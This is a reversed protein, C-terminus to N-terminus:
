SIGAKKEAENAEDEYILEEEFSFVEMTIAGVPCRQSCLGCRVCRTEDKIMATGRESIGRGEKISDPDIGYRAKIVEKLEPTGNIKDLSVMKLCNMPCIDVCGGCLICLEGNFVTQIHCKLCRSAQESAAVEDYVMEVESVGTRRTLPLLAPRQKPIDLWGRKPLEEPGAVRLTARRVVRARGNQLYRDISRAVTHGDKVSEIIIRPGFAADGGAFIGPATTALTEPDVQISGERTAKIGDAETIFSLDSGQGIAMIVTDGPFVEESNSIPARMRNGKEDIVTEMRVTELGTVKGGEGLVRTPARGTHLFVGEDVADLIEEDPAKMEWRMGRYLIHVERAGLRLAGRAADMAAIGDKEVLGELLRLSTRAADMATGGGGVVLVKKGIDVRQNLNAEHLFDLSYIVGELNEGEIGAKRDLYAGVSLFIAEYGDDRLTNLSFDKGLRADLKLEVGQKLIEMIEFRLLNRPLRYEPIGLHLMGGPVPAAEFVTVSYGQAALDQAATLGAPGAGIVAVKATEWGPPRNRHVKLLTTLG